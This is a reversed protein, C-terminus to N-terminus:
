EAFLTQDNRPTKETWIPCSTFDLTLTEQIKTGPSSYTIM